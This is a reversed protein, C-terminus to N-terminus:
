DEICWVTSTEMCSKAEPVWYEFAKSGYGTAWARSLGVVSGEHESSSSTYGDCNSSGPGFLSVGGWGTRIWGKTAIAPGTGSDGNRRGLEYDYHLNSPDVIEFFAAMHFGSACASPASAGDHDFTKTLYFRRQETCIGGGCRPQQSDFQWNATNNSYKSHAGLVFVRRLFAGGGNCSEVVARDGADFGVGDNGFALSQSINSDHQVSFGGDGNSQARSDQILSRDGLLVGWGANESIAVNAVHSLLADAGGIGDDPMNRITGNKISVSEIESVLEIGHAGSNSPTCILDFGLDGPECVTAGAIQFGNLDLTVFSASISIGSVTPHSSLDLDSTLLYSRGASGDISVPYGASDGSFCGENVACAQNIELVGDSSACNASWLLSMLSVLYVLQKFNHM